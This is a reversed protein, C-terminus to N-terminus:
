NGDATRRRLVGHQRASCIVVEGAWPENPVSIDRGIPAAATPEICASNPRAAPSALLVGAPPDHGRSRYLGRSSGGCCGIPFYRACDFSVARCRPRVRCSLSHRRSRSPNGEVRRCATPFIKVARASRTRSEDGTAPFSLAADGACDTRWTSAVELGDVFKPLRAADIDRLSAYAASLRRARVIETQHCPAPPPPSFGLPHRCARSRSRRKLLSRSRVDSSPLSPASM